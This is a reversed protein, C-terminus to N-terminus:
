LFFRFHIIAWKNSGRSLFRKVLPAGAPRWAARQAAVSRLSNKYTILDAQTKEPKM